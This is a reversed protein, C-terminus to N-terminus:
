SWSHANCETSKIQEHVVLLHWANESPLGKSAFLLWLDCSPCLTKSQKTLLHIKFGLNSKCKSHLLLFTDTISFDPLNSISYDWPQKSEKEWTMQPYHISHFKWIRKQTLFQFEHKICDQRNVLLLLSFAKFIYIYIKQAYPYTMEMLFSTVVCSLLNINTWQLFFLSM